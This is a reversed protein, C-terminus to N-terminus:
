KTSYEGKSTSGDGTGEKPCFVRTIINPDYTMDRVM